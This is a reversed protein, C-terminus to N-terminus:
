LILMLLKFLWNAAVGAALGGVTHCAIAAGTLYSCKLSDM